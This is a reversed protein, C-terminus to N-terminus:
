HSVLLVRRERHATRQLHLEPTLHRRIHDMLALCWSYGRIVVVLEVKKIRPVM